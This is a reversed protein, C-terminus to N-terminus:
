NLTEENKDSWNLWLYAHKDKGYIDEYLETKLCSLM